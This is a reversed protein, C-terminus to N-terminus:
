GDRLPHEPPPGDGAWEAKFLYYVKGARPDRKRMVGYGRRQLRDAITRIADEDEEIADLSAARGHDDRRAYVTVGDFKGLKSEQDPM